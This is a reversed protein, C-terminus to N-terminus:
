AGREPRGHPQRAAAGVLRVLHQRPIPGVDSENASGSSGSKIARSAVRKAVSPSGGTDNRRVDATSVNWDCVDSVISRERAIWASVSTAPGSQCAM